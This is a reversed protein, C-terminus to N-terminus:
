IILTRRFVDIVTLNGCNAFTHTALIRKDWNPRISFTKRERYETESLVEIENLDFGYGYMKSCDQSPRFLRGDKMFLSGAPRASKIDSIIPNQLHPKWEGSFLNDSYFLFLEVNPVAADNEAIATFLWWKDSYHILTTDLASINQMLCQKFRWAYPFEICQYLDVSKNEHSEPIMYFKNKWEFIFPYSLHYDRELVKVPAKWNGLQDLEIVSIHGKNKANLFEEIFIYYKGNVLITHPDAWFKEKPPMLKIFERFNDPVDKKLSFLLFWQDACFVRLIFEKILRIILKSISKIVLFNSPVDYKKIKLLLATNFKETEQYYREEGLRQLLNIQRALFSTTAWFYYGRHRAPSFPYTIFHSRFLVRKPSFKGGVSLLASSTEPWNEVVEWFGPPGGRMIRDDGHYYFWIGYKSINLAELQLNEFGFKILIDLRYGKLIKIDEEGLFSVIGDQRLHVKRIPVTALLEISNKSAFPDPDKTFIKEDIRNFIAYLGANKKTQTSLSADENLIVLQFEGADKNLIHQIVSYEWASLNFSDLLLGLKLKQIHMSDKQSREAM